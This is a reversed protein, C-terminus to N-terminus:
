AVHNSFFEQDLMVPKLPRIIKDSNLFGGESKERTRVFKFNNKGSVKRREKKIFIM